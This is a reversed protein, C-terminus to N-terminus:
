PRGFQSLTKPEIASFCGSVSTPTTRRRRSARARARAGRAATDSQQTGATRRHARPARSAAGRRSSCISSAWRCSTRRQCPHTRTRRQHHAAHQGHDPRTKKARSYLVELRVPPSAAASPVNARNISHIMIQDPLSSRVGTSTKRKRM